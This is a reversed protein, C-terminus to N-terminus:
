HIFVWITSPKLKGVENWDTPLVDFHKCVMYFIINMPTVTILIVRGCVMVIFNREPTKTGPDIVNTCSIFLLMRLTIAVSRAIQGELGYIM